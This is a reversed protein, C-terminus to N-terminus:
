VCGVVQSKDALIFTVNGMASLRGLWLTADVVLSDAARDVVGALRLVECVLGM